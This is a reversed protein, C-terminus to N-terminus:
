NNYDGRRYKASEIYATTAIRDLLMGLPDEAPFQERIDLIAATKEELDAAFPELANGSIAKNGLAASFYDLTDITAESIGLGEIRLDASVADTRGVPQSAATPRTEGLSKLRNALLDQFNVSAEQGQKNSSVGTIKQGQLIDNIKM